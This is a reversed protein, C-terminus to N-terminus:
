QDTKVAFIIVFMHGNIMGICLHKVIQLLNCVLIYLLGFNADEHLIPVGPIVPM